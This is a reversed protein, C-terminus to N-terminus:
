TTKLGSKAEFEEVSMEAEEAAQPVTLIGKKVLAVLAKIIGKAEGIAKGREEGIAEGIAKGRKEGREEGIAQNQKALAFDYRERLSKEDFLESLMTEVEKKHVSIFNVLYGKELCIRITERICELANGYIKRQEDYTKSFSIYQGYITETGAEKLVKVQIDLPATGDFFTQNFSVTDPVDREGTFVVYFEPKPLYVKQTIHESQNSEKLYRRYTETIYFLMRLTINDTWKSQAEVLLIYKSEGGSKVIFGLDNYRDNIFITELTEICIDDVTTETDEPHLSKYLELINEPDRFLCLFVSDKTKHKVTRDDTLEVDAM